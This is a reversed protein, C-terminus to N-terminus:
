LAGLGVNGWTDAISCWASLLMLVAEPNLRTMQSISAVKSKKMEPSGRAQAICPASHGDPTASIRLQERTQKFM